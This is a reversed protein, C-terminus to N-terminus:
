HPVQPTRSVDSGDNNTPTPTDTTGGNGNGNGNGNGSGNGNGNNNGNGNGNGNGQGKAPQINIAVSVTYGGVTTLRVTYIGAPAGTVDIHGLVGSWNGNGSGATIWQSPQVGRGIELRWSGDQPAQVVGQVDISQTLTQGTVLNTIEATPAGSSVETPAVPIGRQQALKIADAPDFEPLKVFQAAVRFAQPTNPGALLGNRSDVIVSYCQSAYTVDTRYWGQVVQSCGGGHGRDTTPSQFPGYAVNKPQLSDFDGPEKFDGAKQLTGLYWSLWNKALHITTDAAAYGWRAGDHVLEKNANGVWTVTAAYRTYTNMWTSLTDDSSLPGQQTGTKTGMPIKTGDAMFADLNNDNNSSGCYWIIFRSNCDSIISHTLWISGANVVQERRLDNATAHDYVTKGDADTVKLIVVPDIDRTGPLRIDGHQFALKQQLALDYNAGTSTATSQLDNMNMTKALTPVGVMVGMNAIVSNMYAMDIIRVNAGGTAISPGYYVASHDRFTPDFGQQLTTIGMKKAMDIVNDIGVAQAARFAPVNQSGGLGARASILGENGGDARPDIITAGDVTMPSTDWIASMPAKNLDNFYATYVVPKMSSGPQNIEVGQDIDGAVRPDTTNTPDANPAYIIVQGTTPQISVISANFCNCNDAQGTALFQRMMDETQLTKTYDLTTTVHWGASHVSQTCDSVGPLKPLEGAECMRVLYPEVQDDIFASTKIVTSAQYVKLVEAKAQDAQAQTIDKHEVMLDLVQEQRAKAANGVTVRGQDDLVCSGKADKICNLIPHYTTPAQPIGALLASQALDLDKADEHFYGQAAAQAGVYRGGYPIQNLYWQLIQDKSYDKDLELAYTIERLKRDLTRAAGGACSEPQDGVSPCIYVNKVLQQTISSGGPGYDSAVYNSWFGRFLGKISVGPNTYFGNDETSIEAKLLWNSIQNLPVPNILQADPNSLNGLPIGNRDYIETLGINTQRLKDAIPVYDKAYSQYVVFVAGLGVAVGVFGLAVISMVGILLFRGFGGGGHAAERRSRVLRRKYAVNM